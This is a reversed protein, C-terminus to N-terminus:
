PTVLDGSTLVHPIETVTVPNGSAGSYVFSTKKAFDGPVAGAPYEIRETVRGSGDLTNKQFTFLGPSRGRLLQWDAQMSSPDLGANQIVGQDVPDSEDLQILAGMSDGYAKVNAVTHRAFYAPMEAVPATKNFGLATEAGANGFYFKFNQRKSSSRDLMVTEGGPLSSVSAVLMSSFMPDANLASAVELATTASPDSGAVDISVVAWDKFESDWAFNFALVSGSSLDYPGANWAIQRSQLNKNPGVRFTPVLKRDALLLYGQFEQDFVNQFFAM